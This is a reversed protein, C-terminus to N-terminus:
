AINHFTYLLLICFYIVVVFYADIGGCSSATYPCALTPFLEMLM